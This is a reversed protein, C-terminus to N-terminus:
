SRDKTHKYKAETPEKPNQRKKKVHLTRTENEEPSEGDRVAPPTRRGTTKRVLGPSGRCEPRQLLSLNMKVSM